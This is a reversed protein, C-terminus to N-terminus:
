ECEPSFFSLIPLQTEREPDIRHGRFRGSLLFVKHGMRELVHIWKETELAVGDVDGLRGIIIGINVARLGGAPTSSPTFGALLPPCAPRPGSHTAVELSEGSRM